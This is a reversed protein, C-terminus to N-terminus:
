PQKRVMLAGALLGAAFSAYVILVSEPTLRHEFGPTLRSPVLKLDVIAPVSTIAVAKVAAESVGANGAPKMWWCYLGTWLASSIAHVLAGTGTYLLSAEDTRLAKARWFWHSVANLGAGPRGTDCGSRLVLAITSLTAAMAWAVGVRVALYRNFTRTM